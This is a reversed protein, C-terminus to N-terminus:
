EVEMAVKTRKKKKDKKATKFRVGSKPDVADRLGEGVLNVGIILLLLVMGPFVWLWWYNKMITSSKAGAILSGWTPTPEIVSLGLYSLSNETIIAGAFSGTASLIIHALVNPVLHKLIQNRPRIGLANAAMMFEQERLSLIQARITRALGTWGTVGIIVMTLMLRQERPLDRLIVSVTIAIPFFPLAAVVETLRMLVNDIRGGYYGAMGGVLVGIATSIITAILGIQLSIIGGYMVRIFFDRGSKDTGFPHALSPPLYAEGHNMAALDYGTFKVYLWVVLIVFIIFMSLFLGAMAIKNKKFRDAYIKFPSEVVEEDSFGQQQRKEEETLNELNEKSM